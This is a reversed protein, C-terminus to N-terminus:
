CEIAEQLTMRPYNQLASIPSANVVKTGLAQIVEAAADICRRWRDVSRDTPNNLGVHKGHWHVGHALTMDYGVLIIKSAMMQVALNLAHFGSNGAWGVVGFKMLELRDDNKNLGVLQVGWNRQCAKKDVSLKLGAFDPLGRYREWWAFDCAYAIDADPVLQV